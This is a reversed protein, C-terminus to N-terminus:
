CENPVDPTTHQASVRNHIWGNMLSVIPSPKCVMWSSSCKAAPFLEVDVVVTISRALSLSAPLKCNWSEYANLDREV